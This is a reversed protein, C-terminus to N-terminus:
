VFRQYCSELIDTSKDWSYKEEALTRANRGYQEATDPDELLQCIADAFEEPTDGALLGIPEEQSFIYKLDGVPQTIIPRGAAMYDGLKIPGRGINCIKDTFPLLLIDACALYMSIEQFPVIGVELIGKDIKHQKRIQDTLTYRQGVLLLLVEPFRQRVIPFSRIMVDFDYNIFGIFEIIKVKEDLGLRRRMEKKPLPKISEVDCGSPVYIV